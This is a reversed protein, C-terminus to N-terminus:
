SPRAAQEQSAAILRDLCGAACGEDISAAALELGDALQDAVGAVVLGAAANLLV